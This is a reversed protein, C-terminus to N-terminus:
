EKRVRFKQGERRITYRNGNNPQVFTNEQQDPWHFRLNESRCLQHTRIARPPLPFLQSGLEYQIATATNNVVQFEIRLSKPRGFMQVAYYYGSQKSRAVAVGVETVGPDLMNKRHGPSSKWGQFFGQILEETTFGATDFQFAINESVICYRYGYRSAREAPQNGDANHGYQDTRAMFEAFYRSAEKLKPSVTLKQRGKEQRFTNTRNIIGKAAKTLHPSSKEQRPQAKRKGLSLRM